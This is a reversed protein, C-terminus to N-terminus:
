NRHRKPSQAEGTVTDYKHGHSTDEPKQPAERSAAWANALERLSPCLDSPQATEGDIEDGIETAIEVAIEDSITEEGRSVKSPQTGAGRWFKTGLMGAPTIGNTASRPAPLTDRSGAPQQAFHPSNLIPGVGFATDDTPRVVVINTTYDVPRPGPTPRIRDKLRPVAKTSEATWEFEVDHKTFRSSPRVKGVPIHSGSDLVPAPASDGKPLTMMGLAGLRTELVGLNHYAGDRSQPNDLTHLNIISVLKFDTYRPSFKDSRPGLGAAHITDEDM